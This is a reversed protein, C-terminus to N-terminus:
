EIWRPDGTNGASESLGFQVLTKKIFGDSHLEAIRKNFAKLLSENDKNMPFSGQGPFKSSVVREDPGAVAAKFGGLEGAKEALMAISYSEVFADIRGNKLDQQVQVLVPYTKLKSGYLKKLDAVWLNTQVTGVTKGELDALKTAGEKSVIGMQDVYLPDSMFLVESRAKTRYWDGVTVDARGTQVYNLAAAADVSITEISLCELKAIQKLIEGDVGTVSGDSEVISFPRYTQAAVTLVGPKLTKVDPSPTCAGAVTGTATALAIAAFMTKLMKIM